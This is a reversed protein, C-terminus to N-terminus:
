SKELRSFDHMLRISEELGDAVWVGNGMARPPIGVLGYDGM